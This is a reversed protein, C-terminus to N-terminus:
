YKPRQMYGLDDEDDYYADNFKHFFRDNREDQTLDFLEPIIEHESSFGRLKRRINKPVGGEDCSFLAVNYIDLKNLLETSRRLAQYGSKDSDVNMADTYAKDEYFKAIIELDDIGKKNKKNEQFALIQSKGNTDYHAVAIIPRIRIGADEEWRRKLHHCALLDNDSPPRFDDLKGHYHLYLVDILGDLKGMGHSNISIANQDEAEQTGAGLGVGSIVFPENVFNYIGDMFKKSAVFGTEIHTSDYANRAEIIKNRFKDSSFIDAFLKSM